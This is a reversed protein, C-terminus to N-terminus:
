TGEIRGVKLSGRLQFWPRVGGFVKAEKLFWKLSEGDGEMGKMKMKFAMHMIEWCFGVLSGFEDWGM